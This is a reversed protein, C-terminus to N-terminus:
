HYSWFFGPYPPEYIAWSPDNVDCDLTRAGVDDAIVEDSTPLVELLKLDYGTRRELIEDLDLGISDFFRLSEEMRRHRPKSMQLDTRFRALRELNESGVASRKWDVYESRLGAVYESRSQITERITREQDASAAAAAEVVAEPVGEVGVVESSSEFM